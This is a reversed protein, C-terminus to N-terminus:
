TLDLQSIPGIRLLYVANALWPLSAGLLIIGAQRRYLRPSRQFMSILEITALCLLVYAFVWNVWFWPGHTLDLVLFPGSSDLKTDRWILHHSENTWVLAVTVLPIIALLALNRTTLWKDWDTYQLVFALLAVPLAVIGLYQFKAWFLKTDLNTGALELAYGASWIAAALIMVM